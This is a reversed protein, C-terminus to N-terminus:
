TSGDSAGGTRGIGWWEGADALTDSRLLGIVTLIGISTRNVARCLLQLHPSGTTTPAPGREGTTLPATPLACRDTLWREDGARGWSCWPRYALSGSVAIQVAPGVVAASGWRVCRTWSLPPQRTLHCSSGSRAAPRHLSTALSPSLPGGTGSGALRIPCTTRNLPSQRM